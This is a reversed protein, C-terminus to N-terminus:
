LFEDGQKTSRRSSNTPQLECIGGYLADCNADIWAPLATSTDYSVCNTFSGGCSSYVPHGEAWGMYGPSLNKGTSDWVFNGEKASDSLGM